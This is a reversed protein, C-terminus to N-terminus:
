GPQAPQQQPRLQAPRQEERSSSKKFPMKQKPKLKHCLKNGRFHRHIKRVAVLCHKKKKEADRSVCYLLCHRGPATLGFNRPKVYSRQECSGAAAKSKKSVPDRLQAHEPLPGMTWIPGAFQSAIRGVGGRKWGQNKWIRRKGFRRESSWFGGPWPVWITIHNALILKRQPKPRMKPIYPSALEYTLNMEMSVVGCTFMM